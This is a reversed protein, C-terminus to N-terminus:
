EPAALDAPDVPRAGDRHRRYWRRAWERLRDDDSEVVGALRGGDYAGLFVTEGYLTVGMSPATAAVYLDYGDLAVSERLREPYRQEVFRFTEEGLVLETPADGYVIPAHLTMFQRSMVPSVGRFRDGDAAELRDAYWEVPRQPNEATASAVRATELWAPDLGDVGDLHAFVPAVRDLTRFRARARRYSELALEGLGTAVYTGDDRRCWDRERLDALTRHVTTRSAGTAEVLDAPRAPGDALRELLDVRAASASLYAVDRDPEDTM